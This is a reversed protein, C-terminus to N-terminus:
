AAHDLEWQVVDTRGHRFAAICCTLYFRWMRVFKQDFGLAKIEKVKEDFNKLWHELTLAYDQGFSFEDKIRLGAKECEKRFRSPSPLMGGPFIFTRIADGGRRYREFYHDGITITQIM